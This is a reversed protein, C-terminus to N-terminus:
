QNAENPAQVSSEEHVGPNHSSLQLEDRDSVKRKRTKKTGADAKASELAQKDHEIRSDNLDYMIGIKRKQFLMLLETETLKYESALKTLEDRTLTKSDRTIRISTKSATRSISVGMVEKSQNPSSSRVLSKVFAYFSEADYSSFPKGILRGM